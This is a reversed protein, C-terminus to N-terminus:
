SVEEIISAMQAADSLLKDMHSSAESGLELLKAQVALDGRKAERLHMCFKGFERTQEDDILRRQLGAPRGVLGSVARTGKLVVVQKPFQALIEMSHCISSLTDGKYAEMAAYDTLVAYNKSSKSLYARLEDSNLFSSDVIKRM